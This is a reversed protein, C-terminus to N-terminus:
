TIGDQLSAMSAYTMMSLLIYVELFSGLVGLDKKKLRLNPVATGERFKSSSFFASKALGKLM